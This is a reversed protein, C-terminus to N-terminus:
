GRWSGSDFDSLHRVKVGVDQVGLPHRVEASSGRDGDRVPRGLRRAVSCMEELYAPDTAFAAWARRLWEAHSLEADTGTAGDGDEVYRVLPRPHAVAGPVRALVVRAPGPRGTRVRSLQVLGQGACLHAARLAAVRESQTPVRGLYGTVMEMASRPQGNLLGLYVSQWRGSGVATAV